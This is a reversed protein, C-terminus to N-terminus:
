FEYVKAYNYNENVDYGSISLMSSENNHMLLQLGFIISSDLTDQLDITGGTTNPSSRKPFVRQFSRKSSNYIQLQVSGRNNDNWHWNMDRLTRRCKPSIAGIALINGDLSLIICHGIDDKDSENMVIPESTVHWENWDPYFDLVLIQASTHKSSGLSIAVRTGDASITSSRPYPSAIDQGIQRWSKIGDPKYQYVRTVAERSSSGASFIVRIGDLANIQLNYFGIYDYEGKGIIGDKGMKVWRQEARLSDLQYVEIQGAHYGGYHNLPSAIAVQKGDSTMDINWGQEEHHTATEITQGVQSWVNSRMDFDFVKANGLSSGIYAVRTGGSNVAMVPDDGRKGVANDLRLQHLWTNMTSNYRVFRVLGSDDVINGGEDDNSVKRTTRDLSQERDLDNNNPQGQPDSHIRDCDGFSGVCKASMHSDDAEGKPVEVVNMHSDTEGKPVEVANMHSDDAEGKRVEVDNPPGGNFISGEAHQRTVRFMEVGQKLHFSATSSQNGGFVVLWGGLMVIAIGHLLKSPPHRIGVEKFVRSSILTETSASAAALRSLIDSIKSLLACASEQTPKPLLPSMPNATPSNQNQFIKKLQDVEMQSKANAEELAHVKDQLERIQQKLLDNNTAIAHIEEQTPHDDSRHAVEANAEELAHVKNQLEGIEQTQLDNNAANVHTELKLYDIENRLVSNSEGIKHVKSQLQRIGVGRLNDSANNIHVERPIDDNTHKTKEQFDNIQKQLNDYLEYLSHKEEDDPETIMAAQM